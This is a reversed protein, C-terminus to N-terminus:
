VASEIGYMDTTFGSNFGPEEDGMDGEYEIAPEWGLNSGRVLQKIDELLDVFKETDREMIARIKRNWGEFTPQSIGLSYAIEEPPGGNVFTATVWNVTSFRKPMGEMRFCVDYLGLQKFIHDCESKVLTMEEPSLGEAKLYSQPIGKGGEYRENESDDYISHEKRRFVSVSYTRTYNFAEKYMFGALNEMQEALKERDPREVFYTLFASYVEDAHQGQRLRMRGLGHRIAKMILAENQLMWLTIDSDVKMYFPAVPQNNKM